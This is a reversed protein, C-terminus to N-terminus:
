EDDEETNTINEANEADGSGGPMRVTFGRVESRREARKEATINDVYAEFLMAGIVLVPVTLLVSLVYKVFVM